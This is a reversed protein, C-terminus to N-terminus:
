VILRLFVQFLPLDEIFCNFELLDFHLFTLLWIFFLLILNYWLNYVPLDITKSKQFFHERENSFELMCVAGSQLKDEEDKQFNSEGRYFELM